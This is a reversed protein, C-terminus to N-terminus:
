PRAVAQLALTGLTLDISAPKGDEARSVTMREVQIFRESQEIADLLSGLQHYTASIQLTVGLRTFQGHAQPPEQSIALLPVGAEEALKVVERALWSPDPEQPLRVRYADLERLLSAVEAQMQQNNQEVAIQTRILSGQRQHPVYVAHYGVGLAIAVGIVGALFAPTGM